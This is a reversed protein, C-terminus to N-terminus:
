DLAKQRPVAVAVDPLMVMLCLLSLLRLPLATFTLRNVLGCQHCSRKCDAGLVFHTNAAASKINSVIPTGTCASSGIASHSFCSSLSSLFLLTLGSKCASVSWCSCSM